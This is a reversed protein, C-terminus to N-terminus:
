AVPPAKIAPTSLTPVAYTFGRFRRVALPPIETWTRTDFLLTYPTREDEPNYLAEGALAFYGRWYGDCAVFLRHLEGPAFGGKPWRSLNWAQEPNREDQAELKHELVASSMWVGLDV